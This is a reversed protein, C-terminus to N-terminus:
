GHSDEIKELFSVVVMLFFTVTRPANDGGNDSNFLLTPSKREVHGHRTQELPSSSRNDFNL